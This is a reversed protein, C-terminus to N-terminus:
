RQDKRSQPKAHSSNSNAEPIMRREGHPYRVTIWAPADAVDNFVYITAGDQYQIITSQAIHGGPDQVLIPLAFDRKAWPGTIDFAVYLTGHDTWARTPTGQWQAVPTAGIQAKIDEQYSQWTPQSFRTRDALDQESLGHGCGIFMLLALLLPNRARAM